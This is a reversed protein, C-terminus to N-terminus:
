KKIRELEAIREQFAQGTRTCHDTWYTGPNELGKSKQQNKLFAYLYSQDYGYIIYSQGEEFGQYGFGCSASSIATYVIIKNSKAKGKFLQIVELEIKVLLRENLMKQSWRDLEKEFALLKQQNMSEALSVISKGVIKGVVVLQSNAYSEEVSLPDDCKCAKATYTTLLWGLFLFFILRM